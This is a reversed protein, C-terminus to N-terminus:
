ASSCRGSRGSRRRRAARGLPARERQPRPVRRRRRHARRLRALARRRLGLRRAQQARLRARPVRADAAGLRAALRLGRRREAEDLARRRLDVLGFAGLAAAVLWPRLDPRRRWAVVIAAAAALAFLADLALVARPMRGWAAMFERTAAYFGTADGTLGATGRAAHSGPCSRAMRWTRPSRSRSAPDGRAPRARGVLEDAEARAHRRSALVPEATFGENLRGPEGSVAALM